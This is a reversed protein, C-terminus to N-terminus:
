PRAQPTRQGEAGDTSREGQRWRLQRVTCPSVVSPVKVAEVVAPAMTSCKSPLHRRAVSVWELLCVLRPGKSAGNCVHQFWTHAHPLSRCHCAFCGPASGPGAAQSAPAAYLGTRGQLTPRDLTLTPRPIPEFSVGHPALTLSVDGRFPAARDTGINSTAGAHVARLRCRFLAPAPPMAWPKQRGAAWASDHHLFSLTVKSLFLTHSHNADVSTISAQLQSSARSPRLLSPSIGRVRLARSPLTCLILAQGHWVFGPVGAQDALALRSLGKNVRHRKARRANLLSCALAVM